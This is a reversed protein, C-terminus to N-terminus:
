NQRQYFVYWSNIHKTKKGSSAKNNKELLIESKNDQYVITDNSKYGQADLFYNTWLISGM